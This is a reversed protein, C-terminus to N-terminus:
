RLLVTAAEPVRYVQLSLYVMEERTQLSTFYKLVTPSGNFM